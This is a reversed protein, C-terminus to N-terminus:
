GGKAKAKRAALLRKQFEVTSLGRDKFNDMMEAVKRAQPDLDDGGGGGSPAGGGGGAVAGYLRRQTSNDGGGAGPVSLGLDAAAMKVAQRKTELNDPAGKAILIGIYGDAVRQAKKDSAIFPFESALIHAEVAQAQATPDVKPITKKFEELASAIDRKREAERIQAEIRRGKEYDKAAYADYVEKELKDIRSQHDDVTQTQRQTAEIKERETMRGRMEALQAEVDRARQREAELADAAAKARAEAEVRANKMNNWRDSKKKKWEGDKAPDGPPPAEPEEDIDPEDTPKTEIAM